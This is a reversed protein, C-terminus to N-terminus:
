EVCDSPTDVLDFNTHTTGTGTFDDLSTSTITIIGDGAQVFNAEILVVDSSEEIVARSGAYPAGGATYDQDDLFIDPRVNGNLAITYWVLPGAPRDLIGAVNYTGGGSSYSNDHIYIDENLFTFSSDENPDFNFDVLFYAVGLVAGCENDVFTNGTIELATTASYLIGFGPPVDAALGSGLEAFNSENNDTFTNNYVKCNSGSKIRSVGFLDYTLLGTTNRTFENGYIEVDINNEAEMGFVNLTMVNNRMIVRQNQGSYIGADVAAQTYCNEVIIDDSEVPYIGYAGNDSSRESWVVGVGDFRLGTINRATIGNGGNTNQVTFGCFLLNSCDVAAIGEGTTSTSNSFDFYTENIGAGKITLNDIDALPITNAFSYTGPGFSFTKGIPDETLYIIFEDESFTAEEFSILTVEELVIIEEDNDGCSPVFIISLIFFLQLLRTIKMILDKIAILEYIKRRL